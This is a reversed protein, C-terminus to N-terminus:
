RKPVELKLVTEAYELCAFAIKDYGFNVLGVTNTPKAVGRGFPDPKKEVKELEGPKRGLIKKIAELPFTCSYDRKGWMECTGIYSHDKSYPSSLPNTPAHNLFSALGDKPLESYVAAGHFSKNSYSRNHFSCAVYFALDENPFGALMMEAFGKVINPYEYSYRAACNIGHLYKAPWRIDLVFGFNCALELTVRKDICYHWPSRNLLWDIYIELDSFKYNNKVKPTGTVYGVMDKPPRSFSAHCGQGKFVTQKGMRQLWGFAINSEERYLTKLVNVARNFGEKSLPKGVSSLAYRLRGDEPAAPKDM